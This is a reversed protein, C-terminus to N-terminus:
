GSETPHAVHVRAAEGCGQLWCAALCLHNAKVKVMKERWLGSRWTWIVRRCGWDWSLEKM